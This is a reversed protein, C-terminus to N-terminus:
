TESTCSMKFMPKLRGGNDSIVCVVLGFSDDRWLVMYKELCLVGELFCLAVRWLSCAARKFSVDRRFASYRELSQLSCTQFQFRELLCQVEGFM